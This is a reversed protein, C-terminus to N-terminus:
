NFRRRRYGRDQEEEDYDGLRDFCKQLEAVRFRTEDALYQRRAGMCWQFHSREQRNWEGGRYGCEFKRNAEAHVVATKAYTECSARKGAIDRRRERRADRQCERIQDTRAKQEDEAQRPFIMCWGFHAARNSQWRPGSFGCDRRENIENQEVAQDAYQNCFAARNQANAAAPAFAIAILCTIAFHSLAYLGLSNKPSM